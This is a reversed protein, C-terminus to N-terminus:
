INKESDEETEMKRGVGQPDRSLAQIEAADRDKRLSIYYKNLDIIIYNM